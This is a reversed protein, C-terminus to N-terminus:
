HRNWDLPIRRKDARHGFTSLSFPWGPPAMGHSCITFASDTSQDGDPEEDIGSDPHSACSSADQDNDRDERPATLLRKLSVSFQDLHLHCWRLYASTKSVIWRSGGSHRTHHQRYSLKIPFFLSSVTIFEKYRHVLGFRDSRVEVMCVIKVSRSSFRIQEVLNTEGRQCSSQASVRINLNLQLDASPIYYTKRWRGRFRCLVMYPTESDNRAGASCKVSCM